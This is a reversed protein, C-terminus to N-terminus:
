AEIAMHDASGLFTPPRLRWFAEIGTPAQHPPAAVQRAELIVTQRAMSEVISGMINRLEPPIGGTPAEGTVRGSDGRDRGRRMESVRHAVFYAM